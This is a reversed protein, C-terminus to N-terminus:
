GIDMVWLADSEYGARILAKGGYQEFVVSADHSFKNRWDGVIGKRLFSTTDEIGATRNVQNKFSFKNVIQNLREADVPKGTLKELTKGIAGATDEILDEYKVVIASNFDISDIFESWSFRFRRKSLDRFMYEIFRPLNGKVDDYDDFQLQKRHGEVMQKPNRDNQFLCHFYASTMVDRGDRLVYVTNKFFRSYKHHGHLLCTNQFLGISENRPFDIELYDSILQAVWSGGSKPYETVIYHPKIGSLVYWHM